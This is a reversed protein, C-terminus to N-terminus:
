STVGLHCSPNYLTGVGDIGPGAPSTGLSQEWLEPHGTFPTPIHVWPSELSSM